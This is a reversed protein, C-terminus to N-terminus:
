RGLTAGGDVCLDHMTIHRAQDSLLFAVAAAIDEPEAIRGLPIGLRYAALDGDIVDDRGIGDHWMQRQMQTDTSGPSVINCRIGHRALELGLCKTMMAAAAKSAAYAGMQARPTTASNSAVTVISGSQRPMMKRAVARSVQFPGTANVALVDLWDQTALETLPACRLIGACNVLVGIPGIENEVQDVAAEVATTDRVDLKIGTVPMGAEAGSVPMGVADALGAIDADAAAVPWGQGALERVVASGIGGAAGTVLATRQTETM